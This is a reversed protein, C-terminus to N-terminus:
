APRPPTPRPAVGVHQRHTACIVAKAGHKAALSIATTMGRDKFSGTPNLGEYKLVERRDLESLDRRPHAAHRGRPADRGPRRRADAAPAAYERIVGRWLHAM